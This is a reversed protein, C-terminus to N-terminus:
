IVNFHLKLINLNIPVPSDSLRSNSVSGQRIKREAAKSSYGLSEWTRYLLGIPSLKVQLTPITQNKKLNNLLTKTNEHL